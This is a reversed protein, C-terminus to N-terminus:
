KSIEEMSEAYAAPKIYTLGSTGLQYTHHGVQGTKDRVEGTKASFFGM